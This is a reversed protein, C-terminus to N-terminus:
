WAIRKKLLLAVVLFLVSPLSLALTLAVALGASTKRPMKAMGKMISEIREAMMADSFECKVRNQGAESIKELDQQTTKHLVKDMVDSWAKVDSPDRLWGTVGDVVTELPGGTNAALVPTGVLMAELPVIGFHENSPTYVLLRASQLLADKLSNPVSLLFLVSVDDPVRLATILNHCTAFKLGQAECIHELEKHYLFNETVRQDYGGAVILRVGERGHKGLGAFAKIALGVDKKREYRNISLIINTDQWMPQGDDEAITKRDRIDVCPHVVELTKQRTLDPWVKGVIGKTFNSNVAVADAFSMSWEELFDFPLRYLRKSWKARGQALLLDPFHCYFFIRTAPWLYRLLPLGASLQDVFFADPRLQDLEGAFFVHFILHIQRLIACM